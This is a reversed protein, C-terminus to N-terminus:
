PAPTGAAPTAWSSPERVADVVDEIAAIIVEPEDLPIAHGSHEAIVVRAGLELAQYAQAEYWTADGLLPLEPDIIGAVIQVTPVRPPPPAALVQGGSVFQDLPSELEPDRGGTFARAGEREAESPFWDLVFDRENLGPPVAEVLVL